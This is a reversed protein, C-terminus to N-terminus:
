SDSRGFQGAHLGYFKPAAGKIHIRDYRFTSRSDLIITNPDKSMELFTDLDVLREARHDEVEAVLNNFDDYSVMAVPYDENGTGREANLLPLTQQSAFSPLDSETQAGAQVQAVIESRGQNIAGCGVLAISAAILITVKM